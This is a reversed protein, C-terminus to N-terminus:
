TNSINREMNIEVHITSMDWQLTFTEQELFQNGEWKKQVFRIRTKYSGKTFNGCLGISNYFLDTKGVSIYQKQWQKRQELVSHMIYSPAISKKM